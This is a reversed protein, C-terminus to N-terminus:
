EDIRGVIGLVKDLYKGVQEPDTDSRLDYPVSNLWQERTRPKLRLLADLLTKRLLGRAPDVNPFAKKITGERLQILERRAEDSTLTDSGPSRRKPPGGGLRRDSGQQVRGGNVVSGTQPACLNQQSESRKGASSKAAPAKGVIQQIRTMIRDIERRSDRFWDTSWVRHINWGLNELIMQRLRDRDRASKASHYSAGDCEIGLVFTGPKKPHRVGIDIFFGAVGIQPVCELGRATLANSVAIEFDSGAESDSINESELRGTKAYNLYDKLIKVGRPTKGDVRIEDPDISSFVVVQHKARTFLVNLRRPGQSLNLPGFRQFLNGNRDRGYTVSIFIVDREDGQVNELNKVFFPEFVEGHREIFSQAVEDTRLREALIEDILERQQYNLAVVGLSLEPFAHMYHLILNVVREAEPRNWKAEGAEYVGNAVHRFHVGQQATAATPSPFVLLRGRYFRDNSFAILSDHRSRYHWRLQRVPQYLTTAVDLISEHQAVVSTEDAEDEDDDLGLQREFFTSPPLQRPDGVVVLQGGRAVAGLADEPKLQSAEDMVVLDFNLQGPAIYQAVSLPGMMFCPKLAQLAHGARRVLQRIPIHRRQKRIEQAILGLETKQSATGTHIGPPPSRRSSCLAASQRNLRILDQDFQVFRERVAEQGLGSFQLLQPRDRTLQRVLTSYFAYRYAAGLQSVPIANTEALATVTGLQAARVRAAARQFQLWGALSDTRQLADNAIRELRIMSRPKRGWWVEPSIGSIESFRSVSQDLEAQSKELQSLESLLGVIRDGPDDYQLLWARIAAPIEENLITAARCATQVLTVETDVGQFDSGLWEKAPHNALEAGRKCHASFEFVGTLIARPTHGQTVGFHRASRILSGAAEALDELGQHGLSGNRKVASTQGAGIKELLAIARRCAAPAARHTQRELRFTERLKRRAARYNAGFIRGLISASEITRLCDSLTDRNLLAGDNLTAQLATCEGVFSDLDGLDGIGLAVARECAQRLPELRAPERGEALKGFRRSLEAQAAKWSGVVELLSLADEPRTAAVKVLPGNRVEPIRELKAALTTVAARQEFTEAGAGTMKVLRAVRDRSERARAVVEQLTGCLEREETYNLPKSLDHWPHKELVPFSERLEALQRGYLDLIELDTEFDALRTNHDRKLVIQEVLARDFPLEQRLRERRWIVDFGSCGLASFPKNILQAYETLQQKARELLKQKEALYAPAKFTGTADLREELEDLLKRKDTKHSHLELCFIGLGAQDLRRRVVELAALKESVFLVNKGNSIAAAILNTITQSKGTGPPGEIVLNKEKLADILASHQSSDADHILPPVMQQLEAADIAYEEAFSVESVKTGEFFEAIRPHKLLDDEKPWNKPDLDRFMLFKGFHVLGLSIRRRLRWRPMTGLIGRFKAFYNEPGEEEDLDPLDLGFDRKLKERLSLNEEIQDLSSYAIEYTFTGSTRDPKGRELQVPVLLLPALRSQDSDESEFWELFGFILHLMKTGSEEIATRAANSIRRLIAELDKPYHLTQALRVRQKTASTTGPNGLDVSTPLGLRRAHDVVKPKVGGSSSPEPVPRFSISGGDIIADFLTDPLPAVISLSSSPTHRFNLLKNRNTLDLLRARIKEL